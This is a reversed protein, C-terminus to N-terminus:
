RNHFSSTFCPSAIPSHEVLPLSRVNSTEDIMPRKRVIIVNVVSFGKVRSNTIEDGVDMESVCVKERGKAM